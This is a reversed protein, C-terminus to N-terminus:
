SFTKANWGWDPREVDVFNLFVREPPVDAERELLACLERSLVANTNADLGGLSRLEIFAAPGSDGAFLIAAHRISVCVLSESKGLTEAVLASAEHLLRDRTGEFLENSLTLSLYPM